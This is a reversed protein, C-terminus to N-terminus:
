APNLERHMLNVLRRIEAEGDEATIPPFGAPLFDQFLSEVEVGARLLDLDNAQDILRNAMFRLYDTTM